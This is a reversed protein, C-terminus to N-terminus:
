SPETRLRRIVEARRRVLGDLDTVRRLETVNHVPWERGEVVVQCDPLDHAITWAGDLQLGVFEREDGDVALVRRLPAAEADVQGAAGSPLLHLLRRAPAPAWRQGYVGVDLLSTGRGPQAAVTVGVLYTGRQTSWEVAGLMPELSSGSRYRPGYVPHPWGRLQETLPPYRREPPPTSAYDM